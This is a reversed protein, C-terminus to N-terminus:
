QVSEQPPLEVVPNLERNIQEIRRKCFELNEAAKAFGVIPDFSGVCREYDARANELERDRRAGSLTRALRRTKEGRRMYGDGLQARERRGSTYGRKEADAIAAAATDVDDLGYVAIRTIGLYPDFSRPDIQAASRFKEIAAAYMQRAAGSLQNRAAHRAVHAACTLQKARLM